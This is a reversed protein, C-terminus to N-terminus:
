RSRRLLLSGGVALLLVIAPITLQLGVKQNTPEAMTGYIADWSGGIIGFIVIVGVMVAMIRESTRRSLCTYVICSAIAIGVIILYGPLAGPILRAFLTSGLGISFLLGIRSCGRVIDHFTLPKPAEEVEWDGGPVLFANGKRLQRPDYFFSGDKDFM